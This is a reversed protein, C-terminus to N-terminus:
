RRPSDFQQPPSAHATPPIVHSGGDRRPSDFQQPPSAHATPPVDSPSNTNDLLSEIDDPSSVPTAGRQQLPENGPGEGEGRWVAIHGYGNKLTETAGSWTGGSGHDSAVVVTLETQAYILKNRGMANGVNFPAKPSYPTCMVVRDDYIARRIDPHKLKRVLSEALIGVVSGGAEFASDMALQDVGRAGGSVLPLGRWAAIRAIERSVEGGAESVNRSGVVGLGPTDLLDIAGAAHILPPAKTGLRKLWTQPYDEDFATLTRIGSQNLQDVEFALATVRNILKTIRKALNGPLNYDGILQEEDCGLLVGPNKGAHAQEENATSNDASSEPKLQQQGLLLDSGPGILDLLKWFESPKLPQLGKASLRSVLLITALSNDHTM